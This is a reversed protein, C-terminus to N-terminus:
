SWKCLWHGTLRVCTRVEFKCDSLPQDFISRDYDPSRSTLELLLNTSNCLFHRETSTSYLVALLQTLRGLTNSAM